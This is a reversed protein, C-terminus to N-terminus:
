ETDDRFVIRRNHVHWLGCETCRHPTQHCGPDVRGATMMAEAVDLAAAKTLLTKYGTVCYRDFDHPNLHLRTPGRRGGRRSSHLTLDIRGRTSM